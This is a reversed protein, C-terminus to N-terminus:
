FGDSDWNMWGYVLAVAATALGSAVIAGYLNTPTPRIVEEALGLATLVAAGSFAVLPLLLRPGSEDTLRRGVIVLMWGVVGAPLVLIWAAQSILPSDALDDAAAFSERFIYALAFLAVGIAMGCLASLLSLKAFTM